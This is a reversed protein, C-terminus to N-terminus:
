AKWIRQERVANAVFPRVDNPSLEKRELLAVPAFGDRVLRVATRRMGYDYPHSADIKSWVEDIAEDIPVLWPTPDLGAARLQGDLGGELWEVTWGPLASAIRTRVRPQARNAWVGIRKKGVDVFAGGYLTIAARSGSAWWVM